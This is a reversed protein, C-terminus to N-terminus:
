YKRQKKFFNPPSHFSSCCQPTAHYTHPHRRTTGGHSKPMTPIISQGLLYIPPPSVYYLSYIVHLCLSLKGLIAQLCLRSKLHTETEAFQTSPGFCANFGLFPLKCWMTNAPGAIFDTVTTPISSPLSEVCCFSSGALVFLFTMVTQVM